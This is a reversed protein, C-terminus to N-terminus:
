NRSSKTIENRRDNVIEFYPHNMFMKEARAPLLPRTPDRGFALLALVWQGPTGGITFHGVHLTQDLYAELPRIAGSLVAVLTERDSEVLPCNRWDIDKRRDGDLVALDGSKVEICAWEGSGAGFWSLNYPDVPQESWHFQIHADFASAFKRGCASKNIRRAFDDLAKRVSQSM